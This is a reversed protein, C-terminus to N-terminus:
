RLRQDQKLMIPVSWIHIPIQDHIADLLMADAIGRLGGDCRCARNGGDGTTFAISTFGDKCESIVTVDVIVALVELEGIGAWAEILCQLLQSQAFFPPLLDHVLHHAITCALLNGFKWLRHAIRKYYGTIDAGLLM